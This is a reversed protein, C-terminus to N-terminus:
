HLLVYLLVAWLPAVALGFILANRYFAARLVRRHYASARGLIFSLADPKLPLLIVDHAGWLLYRAVDGRREKASAVLVISGGRAISFFRFFREPQGRLADADVVILSHRRERFKRIGEGRELCHEVFYGFGNLVARLEGSLGGGGILLARHKRADPFM